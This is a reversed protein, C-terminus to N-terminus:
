CHHEALHRDLAHRVEESLKRYDDAARRIVEYENRKLVGRKLDLVMAARSYDGRALTYKGLLSDKETCIRAFTRGCCHEREHATLVERAQKAAYYLHIVRNIASGETTRELQEAFMGHYLNMARAFDGELRERLDCM